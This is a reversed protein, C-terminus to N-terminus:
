FPYQYNTKFNRLYDEPFGLKLMVAFSHPNLLQNQCYKSRAHAYARSPKIPELASAVYFWTHLNDAGMEILGASEEEDVVNGAAIMGDSFIEKAWDPLSREKSLPYEQMPIDNYGTPSLDHFCGTVKNKSCIVDFGYIPMPYEPRSYANVHLLWLGKEETKDVITIHGHELYENKWYWNYHGLDERHDIRPSDCHFTFVRTMENKLKVFESWL